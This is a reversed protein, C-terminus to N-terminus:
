TAPRASSARGIIAPPLRLEVPDGCAPCFAPEEGLTLPYHESEDSMRFM